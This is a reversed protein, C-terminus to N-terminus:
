RRRELMAKVAGALRKLKREEARTRAAIAEPTLPPPAPAPPETKTEIFRIPDFRYPDSSWTFATTPRIHIPGSQLPEGSTQPDDPSMDAKKSAKAAVREKHEASKKNKKGM